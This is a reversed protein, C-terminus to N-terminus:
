PGEDSYQRLARAPLAAYPHRALAREDLDVGLGPGTPLEIYSDKVRFPPRMVEAAFEETPMYYDTILFNPMVASAQITAALSILVGAGHPSVVVDYPEAMAAIEKLELIGGVTAVDPNIIDAAQKEFVQRFEAKSYLDEGVVVPMRTRRRMAAVNDLNETHTPEEYWFPDYREIAEAVRLAHTPALRRHVEILLDVEPGVAERVARVSEIAADEQKRSIYTRWPNPFPDWKLATFGRDVMERARRAAVDPADDGNAWGNAYVRIKSRCAGGLLNYVPQGLTKGVVDWLAQELASLATTFDYGRRKGAYDLYMVQCFHKITFPSRGVLYRSMANIHGAIAQERDPRAFGEGWGYLGDDTEVKAFVCTKRPGANVLYSTVKSVRM